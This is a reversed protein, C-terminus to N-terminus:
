NKNEMKDLFYNFLDEHLFNKIEENRMKLYMVSEVAEKYEGFKEDALLRDVDDVIVLVVSKAEKVCDDARSLLVSSKVGNRNLRENNNILAQSFMIWSNAVECVEKLGVMELQSLYE